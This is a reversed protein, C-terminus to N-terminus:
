RHCANCDTNIGQKEHCATCFEMNLEFLPGDPPSTSLGIDGHCEACDIKAVTVHRQHSFHVHRATEYLRRWPIERGSKIYDVLIAEEAKDTQPDEHCVACIEARPCGAFEAELVYRHCVDCELELKQTHVQHNFAIPQLVPKTGGHGIGGPLLALATLITVALLVQYPRVRLVRKNKPRSEMGRLNTM